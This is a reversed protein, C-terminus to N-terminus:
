TTQGRRSRRTRRSTEEVVLKALTASRNDSEDIRMIEALQDDVPPPFSVGFTRYKEHDTKPKRGM